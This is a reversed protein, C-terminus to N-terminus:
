AAAGNRRYESVTFFEPTLSTFMGAFGARVADSQPDALIARFDAESRWISTAVVRENSAILSAFEVFGPRAALYDAWARTAADLRARGEPLFGPTVAHFVIVSFV